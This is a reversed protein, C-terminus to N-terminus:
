YCDEAVAQAIGAVFDRPTVNLRELMDATKFCVNERFQLLVNQDIPVRVGFAGATRMTMLALNLPVPVILRRLGLANACTQAMDRWRMPVPGSIPFAHPGVWTRCAAAAICLAADDIHIPQVLNRGGGPLPLVPYRRLLAILRRVNNEQNGGYIMTPHLMVGNRGSELLAREAEVVAVGREEHVGSYRWASGTLILTPRSAASSEILERTYRAHACSIVVSAGLVVLPAAGIEGKVYEARDDLGDRHRAVLRVTLGQDLLLRAVRRGVDSSAGFIVIVTTRRAFRSTM